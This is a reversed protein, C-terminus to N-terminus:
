EPAGDATSSAFFYRGIAEEIRRDLEALGEIRGGRTRALVHAMDRCEMAVETLLPNSFTPRRHPAVVIGRDETADTPVMLWWHVSRADAHESASYIDFLELSGFKGAVKRPTSPGNGELWDRAHQGSEDAAVAQARAHVESLRRKLGHAEPEYGAAVVLMIARASRLAISSLLLIASRVFYSPSAAEQVPEVHAGELALELAETASSAVALAPLQETATAALAQEYDDFRGV